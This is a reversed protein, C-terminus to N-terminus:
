LGGPFRECPLIYSKHMRRLESRNIGSLFPNGVTDGCILRTDAQSEASGALVLIIEDIIM